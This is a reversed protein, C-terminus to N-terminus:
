SGSEYFLIIKGKNKKLHEIKLNSVLCMVM